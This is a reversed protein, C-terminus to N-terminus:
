PTSSTQRLTTLTGLQASQRNSRARRRRARSSWSPLFNLDMHGFRGRFLPGAEACTVKISMPTFIDLTLFAVLQNVFSLQTEIRAAGHPCQSATSVTSPPVLGFIWGAAFSKEVVQASPKLGTDVTAHYCALAAILLGAVSLKLTRHVSVEQCTSPLPCRSLNRRGRDIQNGPQFGSLANKRCRSASERCPARDPSRAGRDQRGEAGRGLSPVRRVRGQGEGEREEVTQWQM